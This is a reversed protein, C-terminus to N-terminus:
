LLRNRAVIHNIIFGVVIGAAFGGIILPLITRMSIPGENSARNESETQSADKSSDFVAEDLSPEGFSVATTQRTQLEEVLARAVDTTEPSTLVSVGDLLAVHREILDGLMRVDGETRIQVSIELDPNAQRLQPILPDIFSAVTSPETQVRQIQLVFLDVYPAIDVGSSLAFSRDPGFALQVGYQNALERMRMASGVPDAQEAPQNQSGQELNYGIIDVKGTLSPLHQEADNVSKFVVLTRGATVQDLLKLQNINEIRAIDDPRAIQNFWDILPPGLSIDLWLDSVRGGQSTQQARASGVSSLFFLLTLIRFALKM